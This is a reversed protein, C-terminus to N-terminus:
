LCPYGHLAFNRNVVSWLQLFTNCTLSVAQPTYNKFYLLCINFPIETNISRLKQEKYEFRIM